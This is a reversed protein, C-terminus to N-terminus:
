PGIPVVQGGVEVEGEVPRGSGREVVRGALVAEAAEAVAAPEEAAAPPALALALAVLAARTVRLTAGWEKPTGTTMALVDHEVSDDNAAGCTRPPVGRRVGSAPPAARQREADSLPPLPRPRALEAEARRSGPRPPWWCPVVRVLVFSARK